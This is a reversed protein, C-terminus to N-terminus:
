QKAESDAKTGENQAQAVAQGKSQGQIANKDESYQSILKTEEAKPRTLLEYDEADWSVADKGRSLVTEQKPRGLRRDILYIQADRDGETARKILAEFIAPLKQDVLDLAENVLKSPSKRPGSRGKVGSM